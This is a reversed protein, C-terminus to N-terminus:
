LMTLIPSNLAIIYVFSPPPPSSLMCIQLVSCLRWFCAEFLQADHFQLPWRPLDSDFAPLLKTLVYAFCNGAVYGIYCYTGGFTRPPSLRGLRHWVQRFPCSMPSSSLGLGATGQWWGTGSIGIQLGQELNVRAVVKDIDWIPDYVGDYHNGLVGVLLEITNEDIAEAVAEPDISSKDVLM